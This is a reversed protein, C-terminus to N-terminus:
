EVEEYIALIREMKEESLQVYMLNSCFKEWRKETEYSKKSLYITPKAGVTSDEYGIRLKNKSAICKLDKDEKEYAKIMFSGDKNVKTVEREGTEKKNYNSSYVIYVIDGVKLNEKM